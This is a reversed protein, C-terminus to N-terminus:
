QLKLPLLRVRAALDNLLVASHQAKVEAGTRLTKQPLFNTVLACFDSNVMIGLLEGTKSLVLDGRSPAFDGFLRKFLRNDVRVYSPQSADLKFGVEGYGQGGGSVLVAEPFKFPELALPYVKVGLATAQAPDVPLVLVRPDLSLFQLAPVRSRYAPPKTFEATIKEWDLSNESLPFPTDDLHLLAYIEAGDTVLVTATEKERTAPGFVGERVATFKVTVRNALFDSFLVNANIPRNDRIEKTLEGSKEALQGVGQALQTTAAQAKIRDSREAEVQTKLAEASERLLQKEQEAVKVQVSLGEIKQRAEAQAQTLAALAQRQREAEARKDELQRQIRALEEKTITADQTAAAVKQTLDAATRQTASLTAALKRQDAELQTVNQERQALSSETSSLKQTLQQRTAREDALSLKMAEVLDQDKTAANAALQPVPPQKARAPEAKEWRTLALLNLLLFDCLILLLTKNM